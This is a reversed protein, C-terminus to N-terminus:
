QTTHSVLQVDGDAPVERVVGVGPAYYKYEVAEGAAHEAIKLCHHYTGAPVTVTESLSVVKDNESIERSVAESKFKDGVHPHAPLLVGPILTDKGFLWGGDHGTVQGNKYDDVEEGLYYVTGADDQAFYDLTVEELQGDAYDRDEFVAADVAAGNIVFVKHRDPLATREVRSKKGDDTGELIDQKLLSLPLYPNTLARPHSFKVGALLTKERATAEEAADAADDHKTEVLRGAATIVLDAVRGDKEKISAEYVTQGDVNHSATEQDVPQGATGGNALVTDRVAAPVKDWPMAEGARSSAVLACGFLTTTLLLINKMFM